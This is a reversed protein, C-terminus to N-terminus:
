PAQIKGKVRKLENLTHASQNFFAYQKGALFALNLVWRAEFPRRVELGEDIRNKLEDWLKDKGSKTKAFVRRKVVKTDNLVLIDGAQFRNLLDEVTGESFGNMDSLLVRSPRKPKTALLEEPFSYDLESTKM